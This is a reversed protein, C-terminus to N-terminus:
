FLHLVFNNAELIATAVQKCDLSKFLQFHGICQNCLELLDVLVELDSRRGVAFVARHWITVLDQALWPTALLKDSTLSALVRDTERASLLNGPVVLAM